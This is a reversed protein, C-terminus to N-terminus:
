GDSKRRQSRTPSGVANNSRQCNGAIAEAVESLKFRWVKRRANPDLPHGPLVKRRTLSLVSRKDIMLYDAVTQADVFREPTKSAVGLLNTAQSDVRPGVAVPSV